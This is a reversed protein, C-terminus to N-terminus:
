ETPKQIQTCHEALLKWGSGTKVFVLSCRQDDDFPKEKWTGHGRWRSSVVATSGVLRVDIETREASELVYSPSALTSISQAKTDQGGRSTFYIYDDSLGSMVGLTDRNQWAQDYQRLAQLVEANANTKAVQANSPMAVLFMSLLVVFAVTIESSEYSQTPKPM